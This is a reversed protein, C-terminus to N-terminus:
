RSSCAPSATARVTRARELAASRSSSTALPATSDLRIRSSANSRCRPSDLWSPPHLCWAMPCRCEVARMPCAPVGQQRLELRSVDEFRHHGRADPQPALGALTTRVSGNVWLRQILLLAASVILYIDAGVSFLTVTATMLRAPHRDLDPGQAERQNCLCSRRLAHDASRLCACFSGCIAILSAPLGFPLGWKTQAALEQVALLAVAMVPLFALAFLHAGAHHWAAQLFGRIAHTRRVPDDKLRNKLHSWNRGSGRPRPIQDREAKLSFPLVFLRSIMALLAIVAVVGTWQSVASMAGAVYHASKAFVSKNNEAIWNEVYPPRPRAVFYEWPLTIVAACTM